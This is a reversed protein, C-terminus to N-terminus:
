MEGLDGDLARVLASQELLRDAIVDPSPQYGGSKVAHELTAIRAARAEKVEGHLERMSAGGRDVTVRERLPAGSPASKQRAAANV